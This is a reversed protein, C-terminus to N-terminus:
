SETKKPRGPGRKVPEAKKPEDLRTAAGISVLFEGREDDVDFEDNQTYFRGNASVTGIEARVRM